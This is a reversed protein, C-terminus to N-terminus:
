NEQIFIGSGSKSDFATEVEDWEFDYDEISGESSNNEFIELAKKQAEAESKAEVFVEWNHPVKVALSVLYTKKTQKKM